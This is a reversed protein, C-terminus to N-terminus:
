REMLESMSISLLVAPVLRGNKKSFETNGDSQKRM